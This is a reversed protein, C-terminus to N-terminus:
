NFRILKGTEDVEIFHKAEGKVYLSCQNNKDSAISVVWDENITSPNLLCSGASLNEEDYEKQSITTKAEKLIDEILMRQDLDVETIDQKPLDSVKQFGKAGAWFLIGIIM